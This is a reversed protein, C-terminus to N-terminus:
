PRYRNFRKDPPQSLAKEIPWGHSIRDSIVVPNINFERSWQALTLTQGFATIHRNGRRNNAQEGDTAWKCNLPWQNTICEECHGCSYHGKNDIRDISHDDSPRSGMDNVFESFSAKWGKCVKIGRGGYRDYDSANPNGTRKRMSTWVSYEKRHLTRPHHKPGDCKTVMQRRLHNSRAVKQEGCDCLCSWYYHRDIRGFYAIVTLQGYRHGLLNVRPKSPRTVVLPTTEKNGM